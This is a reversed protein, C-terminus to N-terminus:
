EGSEDVAQELIDAMNKFERLIRELIENPYKDREAVLMYAITDYAVFDHVEVHDIYVSVRLGDTTLDVNLDVASVLEEQVEIISM